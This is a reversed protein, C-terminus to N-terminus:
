DRHVLVFFSRGKATCIYVVDVTDEGCGFLGSLRDGVQRYCTLTTVARSNRRECFDRNGLCVDQLAGHMSNYGEDVVLKFM